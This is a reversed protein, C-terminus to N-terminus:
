VCRAALQRDDLRSPGRGRCNCGARGHGRTKPGESVIFGPGVSLGTAGLVFFCNRWGIMPGLVGAVIFSGGAGLPVGLYYIGTATGRNAKPFLDAIMSIASPAM